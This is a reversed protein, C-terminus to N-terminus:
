LVNRMQSNNERDFPPDFPPDFPHGASPACPNRRNKSRKKIVTVNNKFWGEHSFKKTLDRIEKSKKHDKKKSYVPLKLIIYCYVSWFGIWFRLFPGKGAGAGECQGRIAEGRGRGARERGTEAWVLALTSGEVWGRWFRGGLKRQSDAYYVSLVGLWNM